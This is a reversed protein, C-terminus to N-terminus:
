SRWGDESKEIACGLRCGCCRRALEEASGEKPSGRREHVYPFVPMHTLVSYDSVSALITYM